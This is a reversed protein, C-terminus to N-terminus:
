PVDCIPLAQLFLLKYNLTCTVQKSSMKKTTVEQSSRKQYWRTIGSSSCLLPVHVWSIFCLSISDVSRLFTVRGLRLKSKLKNLSFFFCVSPKARADVFRYGIVRSAFLSVVDIQTRMLAHCYHCGNAVVFTFFVLWFHSGCFFTPFFSSHMANDPICKYIYMCIYTCENSVYMRISKWLCAPKKSNPPSGMSFDM